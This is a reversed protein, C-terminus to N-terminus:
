SKTTPPWVSSASVTVYGQKAYFHRLATIAARADDKYGPDLSEGPAFSKDKEQLARAVAEIEEETVFTDLAM